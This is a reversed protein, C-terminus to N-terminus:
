RANKFEPTIVKLMSGDPFEIVLGEIYPGFLGRGVYSLIKDRVAEQHHYVASKLAVKAIKDAKKRSNLTRILGLGPVDNLEYLNVNINKIENTLDIVGHTLKAKPSVYMRDPSSIDLLAQIVCQEDPHRNGNEDLVKIPVFTWVRGLNSKRYPIRIFQVLNDGVAKAMPMFLVEGIIKIGHNSFTRLAGLLKKDNQICQLIFDFNRGISGDYGKAKDRAVFDGVEFMSPSTSSEVFVDGRHNLGFRLASGDVKETIKMGQGFPDNFDFRPLSGNYETEIMKMLSLFALPKMRDLHNIYVKQTRQM